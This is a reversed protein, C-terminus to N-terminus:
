DPDCDLQIEDYKNNIGVNKDQPDLDTSIKNLDQLEFWTGNGM